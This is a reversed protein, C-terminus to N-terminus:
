SRVNMVALFVVVTPVGEDNTTRGGSNQLLMGALVLAVIERGTSPPQGLLAVYNV